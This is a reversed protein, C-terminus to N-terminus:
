IRGAALVPLMVRFFRLESRVPEVGALAAAARLEPAGPEVDRVQAAGPEGVAVQGADRDPVAPQDVDADGAVEAIERDVADVHGIEDAGFQVPPM